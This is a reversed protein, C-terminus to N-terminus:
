GVPMLRDLSRLAAWAASSTVSFDYLSWGMPRLAAVRRAFERSEARSM